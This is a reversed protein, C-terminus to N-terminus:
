YFDLIYVDRANLRFHHFSVGKVDGHVIGKDHMYALGDAVGM